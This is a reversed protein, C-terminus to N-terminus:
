IYGERNLEKFIKGAIESAFSGGKGGYELFVLVCVKPENIPSFGSFWAHTKNKATQATGTKGAISLGPVRARKGTGDKDNVVRALGKRILDCSEKSVRIRQTALDFVDVSAISSVLHPRILYGGNAMAAMMRIIQVPTVLLYGQGIALNITDGEYWAERKSVMKWMRNPLLGPTECPLDIGSLTGYGLRRAFDYINDVGAIRGAQYFYVNCSNKIGTTIEQTGHGKKKWCNFVKGGLSYSGNCTFSSYTSMKKKELAALAVVVKFVSGPPYKGQVARNLLPYDKRNLLKKITGSDRKGVFLNPDFNPKNAMGLIEGNSPNMVIIVGNFRGMLEDLFKQLRVDITMYMDKGRIPEKLGLMRLQRGRNNVEVQLGGEQGRLYNDYYKELGSRGILDKKQYGYNKLKTLEKRGIYGLYGFLHSGVNKYIYDRLPHAQLVVGPLELRAEEIQIATKKDIDAQIIAPAFPARKNKNYIKRIKNAPIKLIKSLIAFSKGNNGFEQPIIAVDFSIRNGVLVVGNRDFIRGRPAELSALRIRNSQSQLSYHSGRIVQMYFLGILLAGFAIFIIVALIKM